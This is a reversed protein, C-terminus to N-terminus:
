FDAPIYTKQTKSKTVLLQSLRTGKIKCGEIPGSYWIGLYKKVKRFVFEDDMQEPYVMGSSPNKLAWAVGALVGAMVPIVTPSFYPDKLVDRTYTDDLISGSWWGWPEKKGTLPNTGLLFTAGVNDMGRLDDELVNMVKWNRRQWTWKTLEERSKSRVQAMTIPNMQYVYHMTPAYVDSTLYKQLSFTEGHPLAIGKIEGFTVAGEKSVAIPLYSRFLTRMGARHFVGVHPVIDVSVDKSAFPVSREHTGLSIACAETAEEVMGNVSWTNVLINKEKIERLRERSPRQTDIESCHIVHVDLAQCLGRYDKSALLRRLEKCLAGRNSKSIVYRAMDRLGRKVFTTILGPNMGSENVSTTNSFKYHLTKHNMEEMAVHYMYLSEAFPQGKNLHEISGEDARNIDTNVFLIGRKRCEAFMRLTPTRTTVDIVVDGCRLRLIKDFLDVINSSTIEFHLFRAGKAICAQVAPFESESKLMDLITVDNYSCKVFSPLYHLVAKGVAGCGLIAIKHGM